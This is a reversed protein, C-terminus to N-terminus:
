HSKLIFSTLYTVLLLFLFMYGADLWEKGTGLNKPMVPMVAPVIVALLLIITAAIVTIWDETLIKKWWPQKTEKMIPQNM